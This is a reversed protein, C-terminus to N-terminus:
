RWVLFGELQLPHIGLAEREMVREVMVMAGEEEDAGECCAGGDDM